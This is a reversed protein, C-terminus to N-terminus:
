VGDSITGPVAAQKPFMEKILRVGVEPGGWLLTEFAHVVSGNDDGEQGTVARAAAVIASPKGEGILLKRTEAVTDKRWRLSRLYTLHLLPSELGLFIGRESAVAIVDDHTRTSPAGNVLAALWSEVDAFRQMGVRWRGRDPACVERLGQGRIAAIAALGLHGALADPDFFRSIGGYRASIAEEVAHAVACEVLRRDESRLCRRLDDVSPSPKLLPAAYGVLHGACSVEAWFRLEPHEELVHEAGRIALLTCPGKSRCEYGCALSRRRRASLPPLYQVAKDTERDEGGKPVRGLVPRDMGDTFFAGVGPELSVVYQSQVESLNMTEGVAERDDHAPLRHVVKLATNKIVDAILKSPIQEAVVIGEGYARVEALLSAFLELSHAAPSEGEVRRLLRHAEEIVTIHRFPAKGGDRDFREREELLLQEYIRILIAGMVFAKDQDNTVTELEFVVNSKLLQGVDLPHGGEFFRGPTGLRLSGIRVDVFGRVRKKADEDYGISEVVEIAMRQLSSLTPYRPIAAGSKAPQGSDVDWRFRPESTVLDWGARAYCEVFARSLVQPFPEEAQFAALFLARVLDAHGQLPFTRDPNGPELSAPELPNISAPPADRQGPRISIVQGVGEVRGAMRRYEAKAPEIVLWPIAPTRRSLTELLNRITQSKGGGTAGCVFTHRNLTDLSVNLPGAEQLFRDLVTCLAVSEDPKGRVEPTTDFVPPVVMRIGPLESEPPRVLAAVLHVTARFASVNSGDARAAVRPSSLPEVAAPRIKYSLASQEAATCLVSAIHKADSDTAAGVAISVDWVGGKGTRSLERFRKQKRERDVAEAESVQAGQLLRFLERRLQDLEASVLKDDVPIAVVLWAFATHALYGVVDDFPTSSWRKHEETASDETDMLLPDFSGTCQQWSGFNALLTALETDKVETGTAGLPFLLPEANEGDADPGGETRLPQSTPLVGSILIQLATWPKPRVWVTGVPTPRVGADLLGALIARRLPSGDQDTSTPSSLVRWFRMSRLGPDIAPETV